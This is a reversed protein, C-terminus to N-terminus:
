HELVNSQPFTRFHESFTRVFHESIASARSPGGPASGHLVKPAMWGVRGSDLNTWRRGGGEGLTPTMRLFFGLTGNPDNASFGWRGGNPDNTYFFGLTVVTQPRQTKISFVLTTNPNKICCLNVNRESSSPPSGGASGGGWVGQLDSGSVGGGM